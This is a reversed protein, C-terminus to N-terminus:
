CWCFKENFMWEIESEDVKESTSDNAVADATDTMRQPGYGYWKFAPLHLAREFEFEGEEGGFPVFWREASRYGVERLESPFNWIEVVQIDHQISYEWIRRVIESIYDPSPAHLRTVLLTRPAPPRLELTWAVFAQVTGLDNTSDNTLDSRPVSLAVGCHVINEKEWFYQLRERQFAEVGGSPLFTFLIKTKSSSVSSVDFWRARLDARMREADQTCLQNIEEHTLWRWNGATSTIAPTTPVDVKPNWRATRTGRIIWGNKKTRDATDPNCSEYFLGVDSSLASFIANGMGPPPVPQSGWIDSPFRINPSMNNGALIWHLLSMMLRAYGKGRNFPPTFVSAVGYCEVQEILPESDPSNPNKRATLGTRLFTECSCLFDLTEPDNRPALVWIMLKGDRGCESKQLDLDRQVYQDLTMGNGWASAGTRRSSAEIQQPTAAFLSLTSPDM